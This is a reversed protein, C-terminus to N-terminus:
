SGIACAAPPAAVAVRPEPPDILQAVPKTKDEILGWYLNLHRRGCAQLSFSHEVRLRAAAGIRMRLGSNEHLTAIAEGLTAVDSVPVLRGTEGDVVADINGSIRTAVVPLSHVM